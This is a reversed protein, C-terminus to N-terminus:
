PATGTTQVDFTDFVTERVELNLTKGSFDLRYVTEQVSSLDLQHVVFTHDNEWAGRLAQAADGSRAVRYAGDMGILAPTASGGSEATAQAVSSGEVFELTLAQMGLANDALVFRQGSVVRATAPLAPVPRSPDRLAKIRAQLAALAAPNAPLPATSQAAPRIYDDLLPELVSGKHWDIAATFVVIMNRDPLVMIKQEGMGEAAYHSPYVWFLYGYNKQNDGRAHTQTSAAAWPQPVVQRTDWRGQNLYLLGLKAMTRPTTYLGYGGLTIGQPDNGWALDGAEIGLPDFLRSQAYAATSMGTAKTLIASLLHVGATCYVLQRGGPGAMPLDLTYQVWDASRELGGQLTEDACDLGPQMTLLDEITLAEKEPTRNQITREPFFSLVPQRLSLKGEQVAIGILAGMVSKTVSAVPHREDPRFPQYYAEMVIYGNRIVTLSRVNMGAADIRELVRLLQQSDVGQEEPTSIRWANTPWYAPAPAAPATTATPPAAPPAPTAPPAAGPGGCGGLVIALVLTLILLARGAYQARPAAARRPRVTIVIM